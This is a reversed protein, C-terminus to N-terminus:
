SPHWEFATKIPDQRRVSILNPLRLQLAARPLILGSVPDVDGEITIEMRTGEIRTSFTLRPKQNSRFVQVRWNENEEVTLSHWDKRGIKEALFLAINELTPVRSEFWPEVEFLCRHDLRSKLEALTPNLSKEPILLHTEPNPQGAMELWITMNGGIGEVNHDAGYVSLNRDLDWQPQHYRYALSVRIADKRTLTKM